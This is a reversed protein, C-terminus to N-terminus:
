QNKTHYLSIDKVAYELNSISPILLNPIFVKDGKNIFMRNVKWLNIINIQKKTQITPYKYIEIKKFNDELSNITVYMSKKSMEKNFNMKFAMYYKVTRELLYEINKTTMIMKEEDVFDYKYINAITDTGELIIESYDLMLLVDERNPITKLIELIEERTYHLFEIIGKTDNDKVIASIINFSDGLKILERRIEKKIEIKKPHKYLYLYNKVIKQSLYRINESTEIIKADGRTSAQTISTISLIFFFLYLIKKM